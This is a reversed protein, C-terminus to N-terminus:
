SIPPTPSGPLVELRQRLEAHDPHIEGAWPVLVAAASWTLARAALETVPGPGTLAHRLDGGKELTEHLLAAVAAVAADGAGTPNGRLSSTLRARVPEGHAPVVLLGQAGLSVVVLRAGLRQLERAGALPSLDGVAATLEALNPKVVDAGARAAALLHAGAVDLIVAARAARGIGVLRELLDAPSDPPLSGSVVLVRATALLRECAALVADWEQPTRAEGRENLISTVDDRTEVLAYTHRTPATVPVLTHPVSGLDRDFWDLDDRGVPAVAHVPHREAHLVRAVNIAKGGARRSAGPVVTTEGRDIQEATVTVDIAPNPTLTLIM